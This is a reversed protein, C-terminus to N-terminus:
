DHSQASVLLKYGKIFAEEPSWSIYGDEYQVFFGGIIENNEANGLYAFPVEATILLDSEAQVGGESPVKLYLLVATPHLPDHVSEPNDLVEIDGKEPELVVDNYFNLLRFGVIRAARVVKHCRFQSLSHIPEMKM